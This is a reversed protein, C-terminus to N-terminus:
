PDRGGYFLVDACECISQLIGLKLSELNLIWIDFVLQQM